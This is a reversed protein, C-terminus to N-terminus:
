ALVKTMGIGTVTYGEREYLDRARTNWGMVNLSVRGIGMGRLMADVARLMASGYGRGRLGEHVHIDYIYASKKGNRERSEFWVLGVPDASGEVFVSFLHQNKSALGEPLLSEYDKQALELAEDLDSDGAKVHAEAYDKVAYELYREFEAQTMPVLKVM